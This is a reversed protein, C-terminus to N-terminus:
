FESQSIASNVNGRQEPVVLNNQQTTVNRLKGHNNEKERQRNSTASSVWASRFLQLVANDAYEKRQKEDSFLM